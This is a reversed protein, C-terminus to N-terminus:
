DFQISQEKSPCLTWHFVQCFKPQFNCLVSPKHLIKRHDWVLSSRIGCHVVKPMAKCDFGVHWFQSHCALPDYMKPVAERCMFGCICSLIGITSSSSMTISTQSRQSQFTKNVAIEKHEIIVNAWFLQLYAHFKGRWIVLPLFSIGLKQLNPRSNWGNAMLKRAEHEEVLCFLDRSQHIRLSWLFSNSRHNNRLLHSLASCHSLFHFSDIIIRCSPIASFDKHQAHTEHHPAKLELLLMAFSLSCKKLVHVRLITDEHMTHWFCIVRMQVLAFRRLVGHESKNIGISPPVTSLALPSLEVRKKAADKIHNLRGIEFGAWQIRKVKVLDSMNRPHSIETM